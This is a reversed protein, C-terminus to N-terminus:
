RRRDASVLELPLQLQDHRHRDLLDNVAYRVLWALSVRYEEALASLEEYDREDVSVTVRTALKKGRRARVATKLGGLRQM